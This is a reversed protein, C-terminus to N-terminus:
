WGFFSLLLCIICTILWVRVWLRDVLLLWCECSHLFWAPWAKTGRLRSRQGCSLHTEKCRRSNRAVLRCVSPVSTCCFMFFWWECMGNSYLVIVLDIVIGYALKNWSRSGPEIDVMTDPTSYGTTHDYKVAALRWKRRREDTRRPTRPIQMLTGESWIRPVQNVGLKWRLKSWLLLKM